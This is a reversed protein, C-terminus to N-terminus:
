IEDFNPQIHVSEVHTKLSDESKFDRDCFNCTHRQIRTPSRVIIPEENLDVIEDNRDLVIQRKKLPEFELLPGQDLKAKKMVIVAIKPVVKQVIPEQRVIQKPKTTEFGHVQIEENNTM